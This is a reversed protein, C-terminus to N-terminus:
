ASARQDPTESTNRRAGSALYELLDRELYFVRRSGPPRFYRPGGGTTRKLELTSQAVGLVQAAEETSLRRKKLTYGFLEALQELSHNKTNV